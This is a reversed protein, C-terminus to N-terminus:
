GTKKKASSKNQSFPLWFLSLLAVVAFFPVSANQWDRPWSRLWLGWFTTPAALILLHYVAVRFFSVGFAVNLGWAEENEDDRDIEWPRQRKPLRKLIRYKGCHNRGTCEHFLCLLDLQSVICAKSCGYFNANFVTRLIPPNRSALYKYDQNSLPPLEEPGPMIENPNAKYFKAQDTM